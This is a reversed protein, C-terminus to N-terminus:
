QIHFIGAFHISNAATNGTITATIAGMVAARKLVAIAHLKTALIKLHNALHTRDAIAQIFGQMHDQNM